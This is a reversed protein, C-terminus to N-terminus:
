QGPCVIEVNVAQNTFVSGANDIIIYDSTKSLTVAYAVSANNTATLTCATHDAVNDLWFECAGTSSCYKNEVNDSRTEFISLTTTASGVSYDSTRAFASPDDNCTVAVDTVPALVTGSGNATVNCTQTGSVPQFQVQVAYSTGAGVENPFTFLGNFGINLSM